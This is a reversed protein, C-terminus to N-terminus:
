DLVAALFSARGNSAAHMEILALLHESSLSRIQLAPSRFQRTEKGMRKEFATEDAPNLEDARGGKEFFAILGALHVHRLADTEAMRVLLAVGSPEQLLRGTARQERQMATLVEKMGIGIPALAEYLSKSGDVKGVAERQRDLFPDEDVLSALSQKLDFRAAPARKELAARAKPADSPTTIIWDAVHLILLRELSDALVLNGYGGTRRLRNALRSLIDLQDEMNAAAVPRPNRMTAALKSHLEHAVALAKAEGVKQPPPLKSISFASRITPWAPNNADMKSAIEKLSSVKIFALWVEAPTKAPDAANTIGVTSFAFLGIVLGFLRTKM